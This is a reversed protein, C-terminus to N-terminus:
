CSQLFLEQWVILLLKLFHMQTHLFHYFFAHNQRFVWLVTCIISNQSKTYNKGGNKHMAAHKYALISTIKEIFLKLFINERFTLPTESMEPLKGPSNRLNQNNMLKNKVKKM